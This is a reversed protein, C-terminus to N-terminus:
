RSACVPSRTTSLCGRLRFCCHPCVNGARHSARARTRLRRLAWTLFQLRQTSADGRTLCLRVLLLLLLFRQTILVELRLAVGHHLVRIQRQQSGLGGCCGEVEGLRLHLRQLACHVAFVGDVFQDLVFAAFIQSDHPM